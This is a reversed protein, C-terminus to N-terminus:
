LVSSLVVGVVRVVVRYRNVGIDRGLGVVRVVVGVIAVEEVTLQSRSSAETNSKLLSGLKGELSYSSRLLLGETIDLDKDVRGLVPVVVLEM